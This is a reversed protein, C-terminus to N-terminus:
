RRRCCVLWLVALTVLALTAPEPVPALTFTSLDLLVEIEYDSVPDETRITARLDYLGDETIVL